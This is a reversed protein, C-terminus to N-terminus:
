RSSTDNMNTSATTRAANGRDMLNKIESYDMVLHKSLNQVYPGEKPHERVKLSHSGNGGDSGLLDKVRENYIELYSAETRFTTSNDTSQQMKAFMTKCIRPILGLEPHTNEQLVISFVIWVIGIRNLKKVFILIHCERWGEKTLNLFRWKHNEYVTSGRKTRRRVILTILKKIFFVM